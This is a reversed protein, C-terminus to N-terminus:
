GESIAPVFGTPTSPLIDRGSSLRGPPCHIATILSAHRTAPALIGGIRLPTSFSRPEPDPRGRALRRLGPISRQEEPANRKTLMRRIGPRDDELQGRRHQKGGPPRHDGTRQAGGQKDQACAEFVSGQLGLQGAIGFVGTPDTVTEEGTDPLGPRRLAGCPRIPPLGCDPVGQGVGRMHDARQRPQLRISRGLFRRRAQGARCRARSDTRHRVPGSRQGPYPAGCRRGENGNRTQPPTM